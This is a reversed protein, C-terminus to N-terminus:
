PREPQVMGRFNCRGLGDVMSALWVRYGGPHTLGTSIVGDILRTNIGWPSQPTSILGSQHVTKYMGESTSEIAYGMRLGIADNPEVGVISIQSTPISSSPSDTCDGFITVKSDQFLTIRETSTRPLVSWAEIQIQQPADLGAVGKIGQIGQIGTQNWNLQTEDRNCRKGSQFDIVRLAGTRTTYCGAIVKTSSDPISAITVTSGALVAGFIIGAVFGRKNM